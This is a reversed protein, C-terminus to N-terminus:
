WGQDALESFLQRARDTVKDPFLPQIRAYLDGASGSKSPVGHGKLRIRTGPQTGPAIKVKRVGELIPVDASGGLVMVSVPVLVDCSLDSGSRSFVPHEEVQIVLFLDGREAGSPSHGGKGRVRLRTGSSVGPPIRVTVKEWSGAGDPIQVDLAAGKMAELFGLSVAQEMDQGRSPRAHRRGGMGSGAFMQSLLDEFGAGPGGFGQSRFGGGRFGEGGGFISSFDFGRFIDEQSFRQGFGEAGFTDYEKRKKEDSLVAYAENIQKFREEAAKDGKNRDPHYQMALKRYAKKLEDAGADRGVGLIAYYDKGKM